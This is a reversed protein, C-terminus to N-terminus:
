VISRSREIVIKRINLCTGNAKGDQVVTARRNRHAVPEVPAVPSTTTSISRSTAIQTPAFASVVTFLSLTFVFVQRMM